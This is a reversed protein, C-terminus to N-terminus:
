KVLKFIISGGSQFVIKYSKNATMVPLMPYVATPWYIYEIKQPIFALNGTTDSFFQDHQFTNYHPTLAVIWLYWKYPALVADNTSVNKGIWAIAAEDNVSMSNDNSAIKSMGYTVRENAYVQPLFIFLSLAIIGAYYWANKLNFIKIIRDIGLAAFIALSMELYPAFRFVQFRVGFYQNFAMFLGVFLMVFLVKFKEDKLFKFSAALGVIAFIGLFIRRSQSATFWVFFNREGWGIVESNIFNSFKHVLDPRALYIGVAFIAYIGLMKLVFIKDKKASFILNIVAYLVFVLIYVTFSYPHSLPLLLSFITLWLINQSVLFYLALILVFWGFTEPLLGMRLGDYTWYASVFFLASMCAIINSGTIKKALLWLALAAL